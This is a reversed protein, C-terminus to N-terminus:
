ESGFFYLYQYNNSMGFGSTAGGVDNTSLLESGWTGNSDDDVFLGQGSPGGAGSFFVQLQNNPTSYATVAAGMTWTPGPLATATWLNSQLTIAELQYDAPYIVTLVNTDPNDSAGVACSYGGGLTSCPLGGTANTLDTNVWNWNGGAGYALQNIHGEWTEYYVYQANNVSFGTIYSGLGSPGAPTDNEVSWAGNKYVLQYLDYVNPPNCCPEWFVHRQNTTAFATLANSGCGASAALEGINRDLWVYNGQDGYAYEHIVDDSGCFYVYQAGNATFASVPVQGGASMGHAEQTVNEDAWSWHPFPFDYLKYTLQHLDSDDIGIYFVHLDNDPTTYFASVGVPSANAGHAASTINSMIWARGNYEMQYIGYQGWLSVSLSFLLGLVSLPWRWYRAARSSASRTAAHM